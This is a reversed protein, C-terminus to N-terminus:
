CWLTKEKRKKKKKDSTFGVNPSIVSKKKLWERLLQSTIEHQETQSCCAVTLFSSSTHLRNICSSGGGDCGAAWRSAVFASFDGSDRCYNCHASVLNVSSAASGTVAEFYFHVSATMHLQLLLSCNSKCSVHRLPGAHLIQLTRGVLCGETSGASPKDM